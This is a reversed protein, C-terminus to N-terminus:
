HQVRKSRCFQATLGSGLKSGPGRLEQASNCPLPAAQPPPPAHAHSENNRRGGVCLSLTVEKGPPLLNYDRHPISSSDPHQFAQRQGTLTWTLAQGEDSHRRARHNPALGLGQHFVLKEKRHSIRSREQSKKRKHLNSCTTRRRQDGGCRTAQVWTHPVSVGAQPAPPGTTGRRRDMSGVGPKLVTKQPEKTSVSVVAPPLFGLSKQKKEFYTM